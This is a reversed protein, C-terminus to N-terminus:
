DISFERSFDDGGVNPAILDSGILERGQEQSNMLSEGAESFLRWFGASLSSGCHRDASGNMPIIDNAQFAAPATLHESSMEDGTM